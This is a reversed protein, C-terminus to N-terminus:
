PSPAIPRRALAADITARLADLDFPKALFLMGHQAALEAGEVAATMLVPVPLVARGSTWLRERSAPSALASGRSWM